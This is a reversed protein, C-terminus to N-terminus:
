YETEAYPRTNFTAEGFVEELLVNAFAFAPLLQHRSHLIFTLSIQKGLTYLFTSEKHVLVFLFLFQALNKWLSQDRDLFKLYEHKM